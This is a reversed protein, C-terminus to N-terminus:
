QWTETLEMWVGDVKWTFASAVIFEEKLAFDGFDVTALRTSSISLPSGQADVFRLKDDPTMAVGAEAYELPLASGDAGSDLIIEVTRVHNVETEDSTWAGDHDSHTMDFTTCDFGTSGFGENCASVTFIHGTLISDATLDDIWYEDCVDQVGSDTWNPAFEFRRVSGAAQQTQQVYSTHPAPQMFTVHPQAPQARLKACKVLRNTM